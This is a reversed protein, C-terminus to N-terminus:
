LCLNSLAFSHRFFFAFLATCMLAPLLSSSTLALSLCKQSHVQKEILRATCLCALTARISLPLHCRLVSLALSLPFSSDCYFLLHLPPSLSLLMALRLSLLFLLLRLTHMECICEEQTRETKEKSNMVATM